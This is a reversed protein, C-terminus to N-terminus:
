TTKNKGDTDGKLIKLDLPKDKLYGDCETLSSNSCILLQEHSDCVTHQACGTLVAALILIKFHFMQKM